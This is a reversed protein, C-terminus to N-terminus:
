TETENRFFPLIWLESSELHYDDRPQLVPNVNFLFPSKNSLHRTDEPNGGPPLAAPPDPGLLHATVKASHVSWGEDREQRCM